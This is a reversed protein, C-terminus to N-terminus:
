RPPSRGLGLPVGHSPSPAPFSAGGPAPAGRLMLTLESKAAAAPPPRLPPRSRGARAQSSHGRQGGARGARRFRAVGGLPHLRTWPRTRLQRRGPGPRPSHCCSCCRRLCCRWSTSSCLRLSSRSATPGRLRLGLGSSSSPTNSAAAAATAAGGGGGPGGSGGPGRSSVAGGGVGGAQAGWGPRRGRGPRWKEAAGEMVAGARLHSRLARVAGVQLHLALQLAAASFAVPIAHGLQDTLQLRQSHGAATAAAPSAARAGPECSQVGTLSPLPQNVPRSRAFLM